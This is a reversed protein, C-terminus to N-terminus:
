RFSPNGDGRQRAKLFAHKLVGMDGAKRFGGHYVLKHCHQQLLDHFACMCFLRKCRRTADTTCSWGIGSPILYVDDRRRTVDIRVSFPAAQAAGTRKLLRDDDEFREEAATLTRGAGFM